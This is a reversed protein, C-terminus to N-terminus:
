LLEGQGEPVCRHEVHGWGLPDPAAEVATRGDPAPQWPGGPVAVTDLILPGLPGDLQYVWAGCHHERVASM